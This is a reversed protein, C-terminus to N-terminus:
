VIERYIASLPVRHPAFSTVPGYELARRLVQQAADADPASFVATGRDFEIVEVGPVDRIWGADHETVIRHLGTSHQEQLLARSGAARIRGASIIVLNDALREVVDLQHSSFLVPVGRAAIRQLVGLVVEVALPDLGSFPEDLILVQPRHVLAAAIQARQQNGLSLDELSEDFRDGLGLETLIERSRSDAEAATMGHLEGLYAIQERTRMKPYLGREEPMYGFRARDAAGIPHGDLSVTGSDPRTVGIITRMTTTKGAGNGGVFGTLRGPEVRFSIDDLVRRDGFTKSIRSVDLM